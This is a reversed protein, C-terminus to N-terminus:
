LSSAFLAYQAAAQQRVAAEDDSDVNAVYRKCTVHCSM